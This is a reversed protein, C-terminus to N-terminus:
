ETGLEFRAFRAVQINEGLKGINQKIYEEVTRDKEEPQNKIFIQNMLAKEKMFKKLKGEVIKEAINQPKGSELAQETYVRRETEIVKESFGSADIAVPHMAAVQMALDKALQKFDDTRAVFDTECRLEIMVGLRDGTHIYSYVIGEDAARASKKDASAQGKVRLYEIAKEEDGDFEILAKKCAVIGAGTKKRLEMVQKAPIDAM